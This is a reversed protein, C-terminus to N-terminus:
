PKRVSSTTRMRGVNPNTIGPGTPRQEGLPGPHEPPADVTALRRRAVRATERGTRAYWTSLLAVALGVEVVGGGLYLLEAGQRLATAGGEEVAPRGLAVMSKAVLDHGAGAILLLVLAQRLSPRGPIPDRGAIVWSFLCGGALMHLHVLDHVVPSSEAAEFLGGLYYVATGGLDLALALPAWTLVRVARSHLLVLLRRRWPLPLTRLALTGPASLALALPGGMSLLLHQLVHLPFTPPDAFPPSVAVGIMGLGVVAFASRRAPWRDGRRRMRLVGWGYGAAAALVALLPIM